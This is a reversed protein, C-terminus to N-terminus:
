ARASTGLELGLIWMLAWFWRPVLCVHPVHAPRISTYVFYFCTKFLDILCVPVFRKRSKRNQIMSWHTCEATPVAPDEKCFSHLIDQCRAHQNEKWKVKGNPFFKLYYLIRFRYIKFHICKWTLPFRIITRDVAAFSWKLIKIPAM